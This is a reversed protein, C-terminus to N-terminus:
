RVVVRNWPLINKNNQRVPGVAFGGLDERSHIHAVMEVKFYKWHSLLKQTTKVLYYAWMYM